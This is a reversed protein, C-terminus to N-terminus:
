QVKRGGNFLIKRTEEGIAKRYDPHLSWLKSLIPRATDFLDRDPDLQRGIGDLLAISSVLQAMTDDVKVHHKQCLTMVNRLVEGIRVDGLSFGHNDNRVAKEIVVTMGSVFGAMDICSLPDSSREVMLEAAHKGQGSLVASFLAIFNSRSKQRLVTTLGVDLYILCIEEKEVAAAAEEQVGWPVTTGAVGRGATMKAYLSALLSPTQSKKSHENRARKKTNTSILINGPHLDSHIFNHVLVMEFFSKAGIDAITAEVAAQEPTRTDGRAMAKEREQLWDSLSIGEEYTEVLVDTSSYQLYPTPFHISENETASWTQQFNQDFQLLHRGEQKLDLQSLLLSSFESVCGSLSMFRLSPLVYEIWSTVHSLLALDDTIRQEVGQRKVKIVVRQHSSRLRALYVQSVCGSGIPIPDFEMYIDNLHVTKTPPLPTSTATATATATATSTATSSATLTTVTTPEAAANVIAARALATFPETPVSDHFHSLKLCFEMPFIDPRTSLWQGLKIFTPGATSLSWVLWDQLISRLSTFAYAFPVMLLPPTFLCTLQVARCFLYMPHSPHHTVLTTTASAATILAPVPVAAKTDVVPADNDVTILVAAATACIASSGVFFSNIPRRRLLPLRLFRAIM